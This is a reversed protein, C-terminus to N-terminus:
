GKRTFVMLTSPARGFGYGIFFPLPAGHGEEFEKRLDPQELYRFSSGYPRTYNGYLRVDWKGKDILRFPIGTDDQVIGSSGKLILSRVESFDKRHPLYSASKIFTTVPELSDIYAQFSSNARLPSNSLNVSLYVLRQPGAGPCRFDLAVADNRLSSARGEQKRRATLRGSHDLTAPQYGLVDCNMRALQVLLVPLVGDTIQGRLQADMNATIFFSSRLLSGLTRRVRPLYRELNLKRIADMNPLTGPPELGVLVYTKKDPFFTHATLIDPGGFPYFLTASQFSHGTISKQQFDRLKPLRDQEFRAWMRNFDIRHWRWAPDKELGALPSGPTSKVGGLFRAVQDVAASRPIDLSRPPEQQAATKRGCATFLLALCLWLALRHLVM